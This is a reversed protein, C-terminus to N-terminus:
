RVGGIITETVCQPFLAGIREINLKTADMSKMSLKDM